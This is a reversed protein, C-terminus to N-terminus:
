LMAEKFKKAELYQNVMLKFKNPDTQAQFNYLDQLSDKSITSTPSSSYDSMQFDNFPTRNLMMLNQMQLNQMQLNHM